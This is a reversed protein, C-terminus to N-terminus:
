YAPRPPPPALQSLSADKLLCGTDPEPLILFIYVVARSRSPQKHLSFTRSGHGVRQSGHVTCDMPNELGFYQLPYGKAKELPDGWGQSRVWTEQMAPPNKVMQAVLFTKLRSSSMSPQKHPTFLQHQASLGSRSAFLFSGGTEQLSLTVRSDRNRVRKNVM